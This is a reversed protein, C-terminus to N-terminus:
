KEDKKDRWNWDADSDIKPFFRNFNSLYEYSEKKGYWPIRNKSSRGTDLFYKDKGYDGLSKLARYGLTQALNAMETGPYPTYFCVQFRVNRNIKQCADLFDRNQKLDNSFKPNAFIFSFMMQIDINKVRELIKFIMEPKIIKRYMMQIEPKMNEIGLFIRDLGSKELLFFDNKEYKSLEVVRANCRWYVNLRRDILGQALGLFYDKKISLESDSFWLSRIKYRRVLYEIDDLARKLPLASWPHKGGWSCFTCSGPCGVSATYNLVKNETLLYSFDFDDFYFPPFDNLNYKYDSIEYTKSGLSFNKKSFIDNLNDVSKQGSQIENLITLFNNKAHGVCVYDVYKNKLTQEPMATSHAGGWFIPAKPVYQRFIKAAKLGSNIQYGTMASIGFALIDEAHEKIIQRYDRDKFEHILIPSFGAKKLQACVFLPSYPIWDYSQNKSFVGYFLIITKKSM